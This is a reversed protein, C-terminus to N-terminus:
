ENMRERNCFNSYGKFIAYYACQVGAVTNHGSAHRVRIPPRHASIGRAILSL